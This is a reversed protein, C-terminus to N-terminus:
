KNHLAGTPFWPPRLAGQERIRSKLVAFFKGRQAPTFIQKNELLHNVVSQHMSRQLAQIEEFKTEIASRDVSDAAILDLTEIQRQTIDNGIENLSHLFLNRANQMHVQQEKSLNVEEYAFKSRDHFKRIGYGALLALNLAVSFIIALTKISQKM